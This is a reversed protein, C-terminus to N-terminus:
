IAFVALLPAVVIPTNHPLVRFETTCDRCTNAAAGSHTPEPKTRLFDPRMDSIRTPELALNASPQSAANPFFFDLAAVGAFAAFFFAAAGEGLFFATFFFAFFYFDLDEPKM